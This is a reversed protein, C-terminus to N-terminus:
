DTNTESKPLPALSKGPPEPSDASAADIAALREERQEDTLKKNTLVQQRIVEWEDSYMELKVEGDAFDVDEYRLIHHTRRLLTWLMARRASAGAMMLAQRFETGFRMDTRKEIAEMEQSRIKGLDLEWTQPEDQGEPHYTFIM